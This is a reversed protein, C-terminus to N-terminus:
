ACGSSLTLSEHAYAVFVVPMTQASSSSASLIPADAVQIISNLYFVTEKGYWISM